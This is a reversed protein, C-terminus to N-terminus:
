APVAFRPGFLIPDSGSLPDPTSITYNHYRADNLPPAPCGKEGISAGREGSERHRLTETRETIGSEGGKADEADQRNM